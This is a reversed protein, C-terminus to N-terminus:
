YEWEILFPMLNNGDDDNWYYDFNIRMELCHEHRQYNDPQGKSWMTFRWAEGTVWEWNGEYQQDTAGLWYTTSDPVFTEKIWDYEEKTTITALHGGVSEAYKEADAWTKSDLCLFYRHHNLVVAQVPIHHPNKNLDQVGLYWQTRRYNQLTKMQEYQEFHQSSIIVMNGGWYAGAAVTKGDPSLSLSYIEGSEFEGLRLLCTGTDLDWIRICGDFSSSFIRKVDRTFVIDTVRELHGNMSFLRRGSSKDWYIIAGNMDGSIVKSDDSSVAVCTIQSEHGELTKYCEGTEVDWIRIGKDESGSIINRGNQTYKVSTVSGVHGTLTKLLKGTNAAWIKVTNDSSGSCFYLGDPSYDVANVSGSHGDLVMSVTPPVTNMDWVRISNDDSGSILHKDDPSFRLSTIRGSHGSLEFLKKWEATSWIKIIYDKDPGMSGSVIMNGGHNFSLIMSGADRVIIKEYDMYASWVRITGDDSCSAIQTGDPSYSIGWISGTHGHLTRILSGNNKDWIKLDGFVGGTVIYKGDPSFTARRSGFKHPQAIFAKIELTEADWVLAQGWNSTLINEGENDFGVDWFHNVGLYGFHINNKENLPTGTVSDWVKIFRNGDTGTITLAVLKKGDPSFAVSAFKKNPMTLLLIEKATNVDWVRVTSDVSCSVLRNGDPSFDVCTVRGTHGNFTRILNGNDLDWLKVTEENSSSAIQKGNPHIRIYTIWSKHANIKMLEKGTAIDWTRITGDDGGSILRKADSTFMVRQVSGKHGKLIIQSQDSIYKLYDYEWNRLDDPCEQLLRKANATNENKLESDILAIQTAYLLKRTKEKEKEAIKRQKIEEEKAQEATKRNEDAIYRASAEKKRAQEEQFYLMTSVVLGVVIATVILLGSVVATKHRRVFKRLRYFKSPPGASVPEDRIHREIDRAFESATEYRRTRDKELTKMIIWDLDGHLIRRLADPEAGRRKAVDILADGLTSLRTSPKPPDTERIIRCMEAHGARRLEKAGFPTTGTLLEYLLVGLSYIDTRTDVDLGSMEAQEPSMYAPTGIMREYETFMTKETLRQNISKVIGFDIVKPVPRGDHLTVMVNSPKIDRHIIGKQHAHQVAKCVDIFLELRESTSLNNKDCYETIPIGKVLEMVFYPRGTDTAGADLVKAINPHDMLALAQREAEFRAIVQKTDMGLKIIKLAVRRRIPREQEAMYVAGFGGEGILQLLKYPGIEAGPEELLRSSGSTFTIDSPLKDDSSVTEQSAKLLAEVESRLEADNGCVENLFAAREAVTKKNLAESLIREIGRPDGMFDGSEIFNKLKRERNEIRVTSNQKKL